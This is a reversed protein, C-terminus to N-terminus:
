DLKKIHPYYVLLESIEASCRQFRFQVQRTFLKNHGRHYIQIIIHQSLFSHTRPLFTNHFAFVQLSINVLELIVTITLGILDYCFYAQLLDM